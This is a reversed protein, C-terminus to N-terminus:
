VCSVVLLAPGIGDRSECRRGQGLVFAFRRSEGPELEVAVQLAACPDLGAGAGVRCNRVSSGGGAQPAYLNRGVFEGCDCTFSRPLSRPTGFRSRVPLSPTTSTAPLLAGTSPDIDSVVFRREGARPPGLCWEVYGFASLRRPRMSTSTLTLMAIKVAADPAVLVELRHAM